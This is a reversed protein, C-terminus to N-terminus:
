QQARLILNANELDVTLHIGSLLHGSHSFFFAIRKSDWLQFEQPGPM